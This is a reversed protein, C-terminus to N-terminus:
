SVCQIKIGNITITGGATYSQNSQLVAERTHHTGALRYVTNPGTCVLTETSGGLNVICGVTTVQATSSDGGCQKSITGSDDIGRSAIDDVSDSGGGGCASLAAVSLSLLAIGFWRRTAFNFNLNM